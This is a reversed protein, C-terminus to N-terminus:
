APRVVEGITTAAVTKIVGSVPALIRTRKLKDADAKAAETLAALEVETASLRSMAEGRFNQEKERKRHRAEALASEIRPLSLRAAELQGQTENLRQELRVLEVKAAVGKEVMPRIIGLERGIMASAETLNLIRARTEEIEQARQLAAQELADLASALESRRAEFVRRENAALAPQDGLLGSSFDPEGGKVEAILRARM